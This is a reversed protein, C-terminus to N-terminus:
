TSMHGLAAILDVGIPPWHAQMGSAM